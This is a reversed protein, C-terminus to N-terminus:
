KQQDWKPDAVSVFKAFMICCATIVPESSNIWIRKM